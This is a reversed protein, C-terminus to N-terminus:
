PPFWHKHLTNTFSWAVFIVLDNEDRDDKTKRKEGPHQSFHLMEIMDASVWLVIVQWIRMTKSRIITNEKSNYQAYVSTHPENKIRWLGSHPLPFPSFFSTSCPSSHRGQEWEQETVPWWVVLTVAEGTEIRMHFNALQVLLSPGTFWTMGNWKLQKGSEQNQNLIYKQTHTDTSYHFFFFGTKLIIFSHIEWVIQM